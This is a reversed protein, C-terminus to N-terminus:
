NKPARPVGDGASRCRGAGALVMKIAADRRNRELM